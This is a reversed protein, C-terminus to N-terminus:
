ASRRGFVKSKATATSGTNGGFTASSTSGTVEVYKDQEKGQFKEIWDNYFKPTVDKIEINKEEAKCMEPVTTKFEPDLFKQLANYHREEKTNIYEGNDGKEQKNARVKAIVALIEQGVLESMYEVETPVEKGEKANYIPLVKTETDLEDVAKGLTLLAIDELLQYGPLAVHKGDKSKYFISGEKNTVTLRENYEQWNGDQKKVNLKLQVFQAGSAFFDTYASLVKAEYVDSDLLFSGGVYDTAKEMDDTRKLKSFVGM